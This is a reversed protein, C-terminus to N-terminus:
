RRRVLIIGLLVGIIVMGSIAAGILVARSTGSPGAPISDSFFPQTFTPSIPQTEAPTL